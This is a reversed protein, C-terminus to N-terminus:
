VPFMFKQKLALPGTVFDEDSDHDGATFHVHQFDPRFELPLVALGQVGDDLYPGTSGGETGPCTAQSFPPLSM